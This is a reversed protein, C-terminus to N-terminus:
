ERLRCLSLLYVVSTGAEGRARWRKTRKRRWRMASTGAVFSMWALGCCGPLYSPGGGGEGLRSELIASLHTRECRNVMITQKTQNDSQRITQNDSQNNSQSNTRRNSQDRTQNSSSSLRILADNSKVSQRVVYVRDSKPCISPCVSPSPLRGDRYLWLATPGPQRAPPRAPSDRSDWM